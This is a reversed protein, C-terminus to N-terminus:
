GRKVVMSSISGASWTRCARSLRPMVVCALRLRSQHFVPQVQKEPFVFDRTVVDGWEKLDRQFAGPAGDM